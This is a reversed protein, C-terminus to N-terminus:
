GMSKEVPYCKKQPDYMYGAELICVKLGAKAYPDPVENMWKGKIMVRFTYFWGKFEGTLDAEWVGDKKKMMAQTSIPDGGVGEKYFMIQAQEATPAWIKFIKNKSSFTLGLDDGKYVPYTDYISKQAKASFINFLWAFVMLTKKM